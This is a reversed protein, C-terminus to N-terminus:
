GRRGTVDCRRARARGRRAQATRSAPSAARAAEAAGRLLRRSGRPLVPFPRSSAPGMSGLLAPRLAPNHPRADGGGRSSGRARPARSAAGGCSAM